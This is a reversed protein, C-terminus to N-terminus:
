NILDEFSIQFALHLCVLTPAALRLMSNYSGILTTYNIISSTTVKKQDQWCPNLDQCLSRKNTHCKRNALYNKKEDVEKHKMSLTGKETHDLQKRLSISWIKTYYRRDGHCIKIKTSGKTNYRYAERKTHCTNGRPSMRRKTHYARQRLSM